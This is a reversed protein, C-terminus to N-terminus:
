FFILEDIPVITGLIHFFMNWVVLWNNDSAVGDYKWLFIGHFIVMLDGDQPFFCFLESVQITRGYFPSIERIRVMM